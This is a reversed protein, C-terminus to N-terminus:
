WVSRRGIVKSCRPQVAACWTAGVMLKSHRLCASGTNSSGAADTVEVNAFLYAPM